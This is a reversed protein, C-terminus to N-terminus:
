QSIEQGFTTEVGLNPSTTASWVQAPGTGLGNPSARWRGTKTCANALILLKQYLDENFGICQLGICAAKLAGAAYLQGTEYVNQPSTNKRLSLTEKVLAQTTTTPLQTWEEPTVDRLRFTKYVGAYYWKGDKTYFCETSKDIGSALDLTTWRHATTVRPNTNCKFVPTVYYGHEEREPCWFTTNEQFIRYNALQVKLHGSATGIFDQLTYPSPILIPVLMDTPMEPPIPLNALVAYRAKTVADAAQLVSFEPPNSFLPSHVDIPPSRFEEDPLPSMNASAMPDVLPSRPEENQHVLLDIKLKLDTNEETLKKCQDEVVQIDSEKSSADLTTSISVASARALKEELNAKEQQLKTIVSDKSRNSTCLAELQRVANDRATLAESVRLRELASALDHRTPQTQVISLIPSKGRTESLISAM